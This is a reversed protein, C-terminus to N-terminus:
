HFYNKRCILFNEQIYIKYPRTSLITGIIIVFEFIALLRNTGIEDIMFAHKQQESSLFSCPNVNAFQLDRRQSSPSSFFDEANYSCTKLFSKEFMNFHPILVCYHVSLGEFTSKLGRWVPNWKPIEIQFNEPEFQSDFQSQNWITIQLFALIHKFYGTQNCNQITGFHFRTLFSAM